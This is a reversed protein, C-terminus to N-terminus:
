AQWRPPPTPPTEIGDLDMGTIGEFEEADVVPTFLVTVVGGHLGIPDWHSAREHNAFVICTARRNLRVIAMGTVTDRCLISEDAAVDVDRVMKVWHEDLLADRVMYCAPFSFDPGHLVLGALCCRSGSLM